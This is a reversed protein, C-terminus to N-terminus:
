TLELKVMPVPLSPKVVRVVLVTRGTDSVVPTQCLAPTQDFSTTGDDVLPTRMPSPAVLGNVRVVPADGTVTAPTEIMLASAATCTVLPALTVPDPTPTEAPDSSTVAPLVSVVVDTATLPVPSTVTSEADVSEILPRWCCFRPFTASIRDGLDPAVGVAPKM